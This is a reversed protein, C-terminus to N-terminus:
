KLKQLACLVSFREEFGTKVSFVWLLHKILRVTTPKAYPYWDPFLVSLCIVIGFYSLVMDAETLYVNLTPWGVDQKFLM